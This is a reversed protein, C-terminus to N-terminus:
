DLCDNIAICHRGQRQDEGYMALQGHGIPLFRRQILRYPLAGPRWGGFTPLRDQPVQPGDGIHDPDGGHTGRGGM